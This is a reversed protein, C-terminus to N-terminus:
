LARRRAAESSASTTGGRKGGYNPCRRYKWKEHIVYELFIEGPEEGQRRAQQWHRAATLRCRGLGVIIGRDHERGERHLRGGVPTCNRPIPAATTFCSLKISGEGAPVPRLLLKPTSRTSIM